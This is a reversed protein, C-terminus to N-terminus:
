FLPACTTGMPHMFISFFRIFTDDLPYHFVDFVNQCSWSNHKNTTKVHFVRTKDNYTLDLPDQRDFLTNLILVDKKSEIILCHLIPLLDIM